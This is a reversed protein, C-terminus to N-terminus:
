KLSAEFITDTRSFISYEVIYTGKKLNYKIPKSTRSILINQEEDYLSLYNNSTDMKLVRDKDVKLVFFSEFNGYFVSKGNLPLPYYNVDLSKSYISFYSKFTYPSHIKVIYTGKKLYAQKTVRYLYENISNMNIENYNIDYLTFWGGAGLFMVNDDTKLDFQLYTEHAPPVVYTSNKVKVPNVSTAIPLTEIKVNNTIKYQSNSYQWWKDLCYKFFREEM